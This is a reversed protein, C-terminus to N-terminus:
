WIGPILRYKVKGRYEEYGPLEKVLVKEENLIRAALIPIIPLATLVAWWSGLALPSFVYLVISGVYMPHRVVAYPGSDIVQQGQAVEIVRSAYRNERFVWIVMGYGALVLMAAALIVWVPVESWGFRYDLGPLLFALLFWLWSLSILRKQTRERERMRMRRELLEPDNKLLYSMVFAMPIFLIALYLWAEWYALSGATLFFMAALAILAMFYRTLVLRTLAARSLHTDAM